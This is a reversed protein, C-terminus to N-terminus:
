TLIITSLANGDHAILSLEKTDPDWSLTAAYSHTFSRMDQDMHAYMANEAYGANDANQARGANTAITAREANTANYAHDAEDAFLVRVTSLVRDERDKLYLYINDAELTTAYTRIDNGAFDSTAKAAYQVFMSAINQGLKNLLVIRGATDSTLGAGYTNVITDGNGDQDASIAHTAVDATTAHDANITNGASEAHEAYTSHIAYDANTASNASAAHTAEDATQAHDAYQARVAVIQLRGIESGEGNYYVLWPESTDPDYEISLTKAYVNKIINGATDKWAKHSYNVYYTDSTGDGHEVLMYDTQESIVVSKVYDSIRNGNEDMVAIQAVPTIATILSGNKAYFKIEGSTADVTVNAVYSATIVNGSMDKEAKTAVDATQARVANTANSANTASDATNAHSASAAMQATTAQGASIAYDASDAHAAETASTANEANTAVEARKALAAVDAEFAYDAEEAHAAENVKPLVLTTENGNGDIFVLSGDRIIISYVYDDLNHGHEDQLAITAQNIKVQSLVFNCRDLLQLSDGVVALKVGARKCALIFPNCSDGAYTTYPYEHTM